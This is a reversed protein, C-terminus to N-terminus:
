NREPKRERLKEPDFTWFDEERKGLVKRKDKRGEGKIREGFVLNLRGGGNEM